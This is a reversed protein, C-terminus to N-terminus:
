LSSRRRWVAPTSGVLRRFVRTLHSQDAFGCRIAVDAIPTSPERLMAKAKEIRDLQLWRHPTIGMSQKFARVFYGRSLGCEAAVRALTVDDATHDALLELARRSQHHTLGAKPMRPSAVDSYRDILHSCVALAYHDIFLRSADDPQEFAPLLAQGLNRMVPDLVGPECRLTDIRPVGSEHALEDLALRPIYFGITEHPSSVNASFEDVLNVIRMSYQGYGQRLWCRGRSWLEHNEVPTLYMAVIFTDEPPIRPTMGM